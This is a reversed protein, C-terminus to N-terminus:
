FVSGEGAAEVAEPIEAEPAAPRSSAIHQAARKAKHRPDSGRRREIGGRAFFDPNGAMRRDEGSRRDGLSFPSMDDKLSNKDNM